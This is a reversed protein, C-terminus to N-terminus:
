KTQNLRKSVQNTEKKVQTVPKCVYLDGSVDVESPLYDDISM